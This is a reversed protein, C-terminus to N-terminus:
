WYVGHIIYSQLRHWSAVTQILLLATDTAKCPEAERLNINDALM